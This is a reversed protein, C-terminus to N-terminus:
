FISVTSINSYASCGLVNCAKVRYRYQTGGGSLGSDSYGTANPATVGIQVFAGAGLAREVRFETENTSGSSNDIWNSITSGSGTQASSLGSPAAPAATTGLYLPIYYQQGNVNIPLFTGITPNGLNVPTEDVRISGNVHLKASASATGIGVNGGGQQLLLDSANDTMSITGKGGTTLIQLYKDAGSDYSYFPTNYAYMPGRAAFTGGIDLNYGPVGAAGLGIGVNGGIPNLLIPKWTVGSHSATIYGADATDSWGVAMKKASVGSSRLMLTGTESNTQTSGLIELKSLPNTTGIGINGGKQVLGVNGNDMLRLYSGGNVYQLTGVATAGQHLNISPNGGAGENVRLGGPGYVELM